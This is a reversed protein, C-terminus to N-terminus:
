ASEPSKESSDPPNEAASEERKQDSVNVPATPEVVEGEPRTMQGMGAPGSAGGAADGAGGAASSAAQGPAQLGLYRELTRVSAELKAAYVPLVNSVTTSFRQVTGRYDQVSKELRRSWMKCNALKTQAEELMRKAKDLAKIEDVASSRRGASDVFLKKMRVAEECRAVLDQRKRIQSTWYQLQENQLWILTRAGESEADALAVNAAEAFKIMARKLTKLPEISEVKATGEAM